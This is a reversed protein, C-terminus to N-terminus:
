AKKKRTKKVPAVEDPVVIPKPVPAVDVAKEVPKKTDVLVALGCNVWLLAEDNPLDYEQNGQFFIDTGAVTDKFKIKM